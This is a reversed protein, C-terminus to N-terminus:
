QGQNNQPSQGNGSETNNRDIPFIFADLFYKTAWLFVLVGFLGIWVENGVGYLLGDEALIMVDKQPGNIVTNAQQKAM